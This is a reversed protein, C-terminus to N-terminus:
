QRVWISSILKTANILYEPIRKENAALRGIVYQLMLTRAIKSHGVDEFVHTVDMGSMEFIVEAGGPHEDLFDTLDYVLDYIIVICREGAEDRVQSETYEPLNHLNHQIVQVM